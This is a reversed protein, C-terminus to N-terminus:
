GATEAPVNPPHYNQRQQASPAIEAGPPIHRREGLPLYLGTKLGGGKERWKANKPFIELPWWWWTLSRHIMGNSDPAVYNHRGNELPMGLVLHDLMPQNIRLGHANAETLMWQLPLKSLASDVERYGGGVDAHSGSFWMQRCDQQQEVANAGYGTTIFKQGDEWRNLRFMRRREDIAMAHRMARVSPNRRTFPLTALSPLYMRDRRPVILSAVTDWAGVFHIVARRTGVVRAFDWAIKLDNNESSRKYATLAFEALNRQDPPLIGAMHIFGALVRITYAGRSFGFLFIQDGPEYRDILFLYADLINDDLGAGTMLGFVRSVRQSLRSWWRAHGITGVGPDYFVCQQETKEVIRYLKLVNSLDGSVENSTGDCCIVINKAKRPEPMPLPQQEPM